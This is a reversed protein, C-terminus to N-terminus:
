EIMEGERHRCIIKLMNNREMPNIPPSIIELKKGKYNIVMDSTIDRRYRIYVNFTIEDKNRQVELTEKGNQPEVGAWVTTYPVLKQATQLYENKSDEYKMFTIRKNLRGIDM